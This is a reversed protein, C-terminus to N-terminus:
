GSRIRWSSRRRLIHHMSISFHELEHKLAAYIHRRAPSAVLANRFDLMDQGYRHQESVVHLHFSVGESSDYRELYVRRGEDYVRERETWGLAKLDAIRADLTEWDPLYALMDIIPKADLGQVATSGVHSISCKLM